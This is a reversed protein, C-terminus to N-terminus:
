PPHRCGLGSPTTVACSGAAGTRMASTTSNRRSALTHKPLYQRLDARTAPASASSASIATRLSPFSCRTSRSPSASTGNGASARNESPSASTTLGLTSRAWACSESPPTSSTVHHVRRKEGQLGIMLPHRAPRGQRQRLQRAPLRQPQAQDFEVVVVALLEPEAVAVEQEPAVVAGAL